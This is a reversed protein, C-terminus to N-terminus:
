EQHIRSWAHSLFQLYKAFGAWISSLAEWLAQQPKQPHLRPSVQRKSEFIWHWWDSTGSFGPEVSSSGLTRRNCPRARSSCSWWSRASCFPDSASSLPGAPRSSRAKRRFPCAQYGSSSVTFLNTPMIAASNNVELLRKCSILNSYHCFFFALSASTCLMDRMSFDHLIACLSCVVFSVLHKCRAFSLSGLCSLGTQEM